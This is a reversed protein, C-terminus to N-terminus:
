VVSKRDTVIAFFAIQFAHMPFDPLLFCKKEKGIDGIEMMGDLFEYFILEVIQLDRRAFQM